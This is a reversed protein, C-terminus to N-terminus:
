KRLRYALTASRQAEHVGLGEHGEMQILGRVLLGPSEIPFQMPPGRNDVGECVARNCVPISTRCTPHLWDTDPIQSVYALLERSIPWTVSKVSFRVMGGSNESSLLTTSELLFGGRGPSVELLQESFTYFTYGSTFGPMKEQLFCIKETVGLSYFRHLWHLRLQLRRRRSHM